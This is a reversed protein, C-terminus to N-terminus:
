FVRNSVYKETALVTKLADRQRFIRRLEVVLRNTEAQIGKAASTWEAGVIKDLNPTRNEPRRADAKSLPVYDGEITSPVSLPQATTSNFRYTAQPHHVLM